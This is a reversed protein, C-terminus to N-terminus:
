SFAISTMHAPTKLPIGRSPFFHWPCKLDKRGKYDDQSLFSTWTGIDDDNDDGEDSSINRSHRSWALIGALLCKIHMTKKTLLILIQGVSGILSWGNRPFVLFLGKAHILPEKGGQLQWTGIM